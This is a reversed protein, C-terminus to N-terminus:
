LIKGPNMIHFPDFLRKVGRMLEIELPSKASRLRGVNSQGIGHEASISGGLGITAEDVLANATRVGQEFRDQADRPFIVVVHINGDGLHGVYYTSVDPLAAAVSADVRAVFAPVQSVPVSTDHSVSRGAAMNAETVSHRIRWIAEAQALNSAVAADAVAGSQLAAM